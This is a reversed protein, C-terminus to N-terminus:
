CRGGFNMLSHLDLHGPALSARLRLADAVCVGVAALSAAEPLRRGGRMWLELGEPLALALRPNDM